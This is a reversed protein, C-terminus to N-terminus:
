ISVKILHSVKKIMGFVSSSCVLSSSSGVGSLGLGRLNSSQKVTLGSFGRTQTVTIKKDKLNVFEVM